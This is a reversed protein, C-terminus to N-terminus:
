GARPLWLSAIFAVITQFLFPGNVLSVLAGM